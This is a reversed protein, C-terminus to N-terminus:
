LLGFSLFYQTNSIIVHVLITIFEQAQMFVLLLELMLFLKLSPLILYWIAVVLPQLKSRCTSYYAKEQEVVNCLWQFSNFSCKASIVGHSLLVKAELDCLFKVKCNSIGNSGCKNVGFSVIRKWICMHYERVCYQVRGEHRGEFSTNLIQQLSVQHATPVPSTAENDASTCTYM